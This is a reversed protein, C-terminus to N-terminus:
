NPAGREDYLAEAGWAKIPPARRRAEAVGKMIARYNAEAQGPTLRPAGLGQTSKYERSASVVIETTSAGLGAALEHAIGYAEDSRIILQKCIDAPM